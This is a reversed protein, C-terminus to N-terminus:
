GFHIENAQFWQDIQMMMDQMAAKNKFSPLMALLPQQVGKTENGKKQLVFISKKHEESKFTTESLQILGVIHAHKHIFSHLQQSQDSTFLNEPIIFILFGGDKTYHISQEILLYHAYSHGKEAKLEYQNAQIDDPYYGIPLDAVVLDVPDLLLPSLSDQHFIDVEQQLVNAYMLSIKLLTVDVECAYADKVQKLSDMATLLLNGTGNVPDFLRIHKQQKMLKEALYGIFLAITDPTIAHQHQTTKQMGKLIVLQIAKRIEEKSFTKPNHEIKNAIQQRLDDPVLDHIDGYHFAQLSYYLSDLYPENLYDQIIMTAEDLWDFLQITQSESM